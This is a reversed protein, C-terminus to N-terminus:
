SPHSRRARFAELLAARANDPPAATPSEALLESTLRLQALYEVCEPCIVLHEELLERHPSELAGETWETVLEVFEICRVAPQRM